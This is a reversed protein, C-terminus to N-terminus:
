GKSVVKQRVCCWFCEELEDLRSPDVADGYLKLEEGVDAGGVKLYETKSRSM